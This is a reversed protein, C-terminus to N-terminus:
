LITTPAHFFEDSARRLVHYRWRRCFNRLQSVTSSIIHEFKNMLFDDKGFTLYVANAAIIGRIGHPVTSEEDGFGKQIFENAEIYLAM